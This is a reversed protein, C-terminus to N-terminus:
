PLLNKGQLTAGMKLAEMDLPALLLEYFNNAKCDWSVRPLTGECKIHRFYTCSTSTLWKPPRLRGLFLKTLNVSRGSM